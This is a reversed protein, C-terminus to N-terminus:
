GEKGKYTIEGEEELEDIAREIAAGLLWCRIIVDLWEPGRAYDKEDIAGETTIEELLDWNHCIAEEALWVSFWYSGSANGTVSDNTWLEDKAIDELEGRNSFHNSFDWYGLNELIAKKADNTVAELYNYKEM